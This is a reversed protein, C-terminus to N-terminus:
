AARPRERDAPAIPQELLHWLDTGLAALLPALSSTLLQGRSLAAWSLFTHDWLLRVQYTNSDRRQVALGFRHPFPGCLRVGEPLDWVQDGEEDENEWCLCCVPLPPTCCDDLYTRVVRPAPSALRVM